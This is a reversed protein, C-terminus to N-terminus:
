EPESCEAPLLSGAEGVFALACPTKHLSM